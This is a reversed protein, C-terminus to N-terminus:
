LRSVVALSYSFVSVLGVSIFMSVTLALGGNFAMKLVSKMNCSYLSAVRTAQGASVLHQCTLISVGAKVGPGAYRGADSM